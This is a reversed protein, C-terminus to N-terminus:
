GPGSHVKGDHSYRRRDLSMRLPPNLAVEAVAKVNAEASTPQNAVVLAQWHQFEPSATDSAAGCGPPLVDILKLNARLRKEEPKTAGFFDSLRGGVKGDVFFMRNWFEGYAQPRYGAAATAYVSVTDAENQKEDSDGGPGPTQGEHPRRYCSSFSQMFM